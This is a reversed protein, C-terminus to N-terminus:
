AKATSGKGVSKLNKNLIHRALSFLTVAGILGILPAVAGWLNTGSFQTVLQNAIDSPMFDGSM